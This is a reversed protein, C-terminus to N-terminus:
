PQEIRMTAQARLTVGSFLYRVIPVEGPRDYALRVTLPDGQRREVAGPTIAVDLTEFGNRRAAAEAQAEDPNVVAVRAAERAAHWLRVQDAALLGIEVLAVAVLMVLPLIAAFEVTTQGHQRRFV